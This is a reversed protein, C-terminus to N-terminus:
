NSFYARKMSDVELIALKIGNINIIFLVRRWPSLLLHSCSWASAIDDVGGDASKGPVGIVLWLAPSPFRNLHCVVVTAELPYEDHCKISSHRSAPQSVSQFQHLLAWCQLQWFTSCCFKFHELTPRRLDKITSKALSLKFLPHAPPTPLNNETCVCQVKKCPLPCGGVGVVLQILM